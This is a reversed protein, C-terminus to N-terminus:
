RLIRIIRKVVTEPHQILQHEWIRIVHWGSRRLKRRIFKDRLINSSIKKQWFEVNSSPISRDKECGHWFCGDVFIVVRKKDFVFDPKGILDIANLRWGFIKKSKLLQRLHLETSLNGKSHVATMIESRKEKSFTDAM